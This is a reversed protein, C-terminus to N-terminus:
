DYGDDLNRRRIQWSFYEWKISSSDIIALMELQLILEKLKRRAVTKMHEIYGSATIMETDRFRVEDFM